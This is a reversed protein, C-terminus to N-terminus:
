GPTSLKCVSARSISRNLEVMIGSYELRDLHGSLRIQYLQLKRDLVRLSVEGDRIEMGVTTDQDGLDVTTGMRDTAHTVFKCIADM